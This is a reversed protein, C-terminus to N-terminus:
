CYGSQNRSASDIQNFYSRIAEGWGSYYIDVDSASPVNETPAQFSFVVTGGVLLKFETGMEGCSFFNKNCRLNMKGDYRGDEFFTLYGERWECDDLRSRGWNVTRAPVFLNKAVESQFSESPTASESETCSLKQQTQEKNEDMDFEERFNILRLGADM